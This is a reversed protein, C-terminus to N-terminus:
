KDPGRTPSKDLMRLVEPSYYTLKPLLYERFREALRIWETVEQHRLPLRSIEEAHFWAAGVSEKDPHSKLVGGIPTGLFVMRLKTTVGDEALVQDAGLIGVPEITLGSEERTERIAATLFNEGPEVGGGPLHWVKMNDEGHEEVLLQRRRLCSGFLISYGQHTKDHCPEVIQYRHGFTEALL